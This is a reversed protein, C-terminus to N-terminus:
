VTARILKEAAESRPRLMYQLPDPYSVFGTTMQPTPDLEKGNEDLSPLVDFVHLVSAITLFAHEQAFHRGPCIRRGFGFALTNPDRVAPNLVGDKMFRDPDFREPEPYEEPNHLMHWVNPMIVTGEPIFYGRYYDDAILRHPIGLPLVPIWRTCELIIAQIYPLSDCDEYTPLRDLGVVLDLEERARKQIDHNMAIGCFFTQILSYTTDAGATYAVGTAHKAHLEEENRRVPDQEQALKVILDHAMSSNPDVANKIADFPRDIMNLVSPRWRACYKVAAAGPVWSPVYQLIPMFDVWYKGPIRSENLVHQGQTASTIYEDDMSDIQQGYVVDVIVAAVTQRVCLPNLQTGKQDLCRRLFAHVERAQKDRYQPVVTQNFYQHFNKRISRWRSGYPMLGMDFEWGTLIDVTLTPKDSYISARKEMLDLAIDASSIILIPTSLVRLFFIDGHKQAMDRFVAWPRQGNPLDLLNGIVPWGRPGPPLTCGQLRDSWKRRRALLVVAALIASATLALPSLTPM